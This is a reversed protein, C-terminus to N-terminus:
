IKMRLQDFRAKNFRAGLIPLRTIGGLFSDNISVCRLKKLISNQKRLVKKEKLIKGGYTVDGVITNSFFKSVELQSRLAEFKSSSALDGSM